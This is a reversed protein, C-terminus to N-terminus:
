ADKVEELPCWDPIYETIHIGLKDLKSFNVKRGKNSKARCLFISRNTDAWCGHPCSIYPSFIGVCGKIKKTYLRMKKLIFHLM